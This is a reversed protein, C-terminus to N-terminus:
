SLNVETGLVYGSKGGVEVEVWQQLNHWLTRRVVVQTGETLVLLTPAATDPASHLVVNREHVIGNRYFPSTDAHALRDTLHLTPGNVALWAGGALGALVVVGVVVFVQRSTRRRDLAGHLQEAEARLADRERQMARGGAEARRLAERTQELDTELAELRAQLEAVRAASTGASDLGAMFIAKLQGGSLGLRRALAGVARGANDAEGDDSVLLALRNALRGIEEDNM